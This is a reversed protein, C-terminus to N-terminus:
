IVRLLVTSDNIRTSKIPKAGEMIKRLAVKGGTLVEDLTEQTKRGITKAFSNQPAYNIITTGKIMLGGRDIAKMVSLTKTKWNYTWLEQAELVKVPDISALRL